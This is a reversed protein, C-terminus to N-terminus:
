KLANAVAEALKERFEPSEIKGAECSNSLYGGELLVAPRKQGVLVGMFRARRIGRDEEGSAPLVAGHLRVALQINLEDFHNNPFTQTYFDPNGRTLTSPAGMPTLCYTELGSQRHDPAASNFHLSIFANAKCATTFAVRNSLAVDVDNTRTLYVRWGNTELLPKLRRAWDLTREGEPTFGQFRSGRQVLMVGLIEELQKLSTSMTPQTVGCAEAARGFHREKALALLLELKEIM